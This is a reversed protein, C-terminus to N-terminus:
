PFNQFAKSLTDPQRELAKIAEAETCFEEETMKLLNCLYQEVARKMVYRLQPPEKIKPFVKAQIARLAGMPILNSHILPFTAAKSM